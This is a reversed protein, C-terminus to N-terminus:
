FFRAVSHYRKGRESSRREMADRLCDKELWSEDTNATDRVQDMVCVADGSDSCLPEYLSVPEVIQMSPAFVIDERPM